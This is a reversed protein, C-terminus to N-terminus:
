ERRQPDPETTRVVESIWASMGEYDDTPPRRELLALFRSVEEELQCIGTSNTREKPRQEGQRENSTSQQAASKTNAAVCDVEDVDEAWSEGVSEKNEKLSKKSEGQSCLNFMQVSNRKMQQGRDLDAM